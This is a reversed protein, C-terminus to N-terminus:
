IFYYEYHIMTGPYSQSCSHSICVIVIPFILWCNSYANICTWFSWYEFAMHKKDCVETSSAELFFECFKNRLNLPSSSRDLIHYLSIYMSPHCFSFFYNAIINNLESYLLYILLFWNIFTNIHSQIALNADSSIKIEFINFQM